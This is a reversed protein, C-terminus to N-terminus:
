DLMNHLILIVLHKDNFIKIMANETIIKTNM